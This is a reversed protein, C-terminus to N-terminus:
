ADGVGRWAEPSFRLGGGPRLCGSGGGPRAAFVQPRRWAELLNGGLDLFRLFELGSSAEPLSSSAEPLLSWEERAEFLHGGFDISEPIDLCEGLEM